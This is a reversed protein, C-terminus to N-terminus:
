ELSSPAGDRTERMSRVLPFTQGRPLTTIEKTPEFDTYSAQIEKESDKLLPQYNRLRAFLPSENHPVLRTRLSSFAPVAMLAKQLM